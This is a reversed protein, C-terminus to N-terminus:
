IQECLIYILSESVGRPMVFGCEQLNNYYKSNSQKVKIKRSKKKMILLFITCKSMVPLHVIVLFHVSRNKAKSRNM